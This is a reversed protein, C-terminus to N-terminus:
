AHHFLYVSREFTFDEFLDRKPINSQTQISTDTPTQKVTDKKIRENKKANIFILSLFICSVIIIKKM